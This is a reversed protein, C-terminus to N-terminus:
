SSKNCCAAAVAVAAEAEEAATLRTLEHWTTEVCDEDTVEDDMDLLGQSLAELCEAATASTTNYRKMIDQCLSSVSKEKDM